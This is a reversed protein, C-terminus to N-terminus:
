EAVVVEYQDIVARISQANAAERQDKRWAAELEPLMDDCQGAAAKEEAEVRVLHLGFSSPYPGQFAGADVDAAFLNRAFAPGFSKTVDPLSARSYRRNLLFPDGLSEWNADTVQGKLAAAKSRLQADSLTGPSIYIHAFTRRPAAAFKQPNEDLFACLQAKDPAEVDVTDELMFRAKQALRRRIITDGEDLGLKAAERVLAEEQVFDYLLAQLEEQTPNRQNEGAFLIARREMEDPDVLITNTEYDQARQWLAHGAFLLAGLVCFHVFPEAAWRRWGTMNADTM